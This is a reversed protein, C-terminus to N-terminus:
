TSLWPALLPSPLLELDESRSPASLVLAPTAARWASILGRAETLRGNAFAAPIGAAIQAPLPLFPDPQVPQPFAEAHLGAVWIGDYLVVPDALAASITVVGDDDAPRFATRSALESFWHTAEARTMPGASSALQGFEDLLEHLRVVTQQESSDRVREGPWHVAHLAARFR